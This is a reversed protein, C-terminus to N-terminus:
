QSYRSKHLSLLLVTSSSRIVVNETLCYGTDPKIRERDISADENFRLPVFVMSDRVWLRYLGHIELVRM